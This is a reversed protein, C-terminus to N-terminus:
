SVYFPEVKSLLTQLSVAAACSAACFVENTSKDGDAYLRFRWGGNLGIVM